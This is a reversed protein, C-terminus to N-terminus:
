FLILILCPCVQLLRLSAGHRPQPDDLPHHWLVGGQAQPLHLLREHHARPPLGRPQRHHPVHDHEAWAAAEPQRWLKLVAQKKPPNKHVTEWNM